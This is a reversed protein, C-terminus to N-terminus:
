FFCKLWLMPFHFSQPWFFEWLHCQTLSESSILLALIWLMTNLLVFRKRYMASDCVYFKSDRGTLLMGSTPLYDFLWLSLSHSECCLLSQFNFVTERCLSFLGMIGATPYVSCVLTHLNNLSYYFLILWLSSMVQPFFFLLILFYCRFVLILSKEFLKHFRVSM